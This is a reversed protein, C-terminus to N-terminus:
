RDAGAGRQADRERRLREVLAELEQQLPGGRALAEELTAIAEDIEGRLYHGSAISRLSFQDKAGQRRAFEIRRGSAERALARFRPNSKLVALAPDNAFSRVVYAGRDMSARLHSIAGEQDGAAVADLAAVYHGSMGDPYRRAGERMLAEESQWLMARANSRMGFLAILVACLATAV